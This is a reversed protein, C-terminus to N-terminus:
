GFEHITATQKEHSHGHGSYAGGEPRFPANVTTVRLGLGELMAELVHDHKLRLIFTEGEHQIDLAVHRNGLHYAARAILLGDCERIETLHEHADMIEIVRRSTENEASLKDGQKLVTGKPVDILVCADGPLVVQSRSRAREEHTLSLIDTAPEHHHAFKQAVFM